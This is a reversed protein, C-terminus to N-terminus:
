YNRDLIVKELKKESNNVSDLDVIIQKGDSWKGAWRVTKAIFTERSYEDSEYASLIDVFDPLIDVLQVKRKINSNTLMDVRKKSKELELQAIKLNAKRLKLNAELVDIELKHVRENHSSM